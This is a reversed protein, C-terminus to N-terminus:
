PDDPDALLEWATLMGFESITECLYRIECGLHGEGVQLPAGIPVRNWLNNRGM